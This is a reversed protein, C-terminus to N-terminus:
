YWTNKKRILTGLIERLRVRKWEPVSFTPIVKTIAEINTCYKIAIFTINKYLINNLIIYQVSLNKKPSKLQLRLKMGLICMFHRVLSHAM